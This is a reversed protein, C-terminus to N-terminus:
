DDIRYPNPEHSLVGHPTAVVPYVEGLWELLGRLAEIKMRITEIAADSFYDRHRESEVRDLHLADLKALWAARLAAPAPCSKSDREMPIPPRSLVRGRLPAPTGSDQGM